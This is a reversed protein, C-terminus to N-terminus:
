QKLAQAAPISKGQRTDITETFMARMCRRIQFELCTQSLFSQRPLHFIARRVCDIAGGQTLAEEDGQLGSNIQSAM